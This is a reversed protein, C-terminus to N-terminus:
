IHILSLDLQTQAATLAAYVKPVEAYKAAETQLSANTAQAASLQDQASAADNAALYYLGGVVGAAALVSLALIARVSRFRAEEAIETPLLNVRPMTTTRVATTTSM